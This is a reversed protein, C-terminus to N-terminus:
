DRVEGLAGALWGSVERRSMVPSGDPGHLARLVRDLAVELLAQAEPDAGSAELVPDASVGRQRIPQYTVRDGLEVLVRDLALAAEALGTLRDYAAVRAPADAAFDELARALRLSRVPGSVGADELARLYAARYLEMERARVEDAFVGAREWYRRVEGFAAADALYVGELWVEPVEGFALELRVGEVADRFARDAAVRVEAETAGLPGRPAPSSAAVRLPPAEGPEPGVRGAWAVTVVGLVAVSATAAWGFRARRAPKMSGPRDVRVTFPEAAPASRTRPVPAPVPPEQDVGGVGVSVLALERALAPEETDALREEEMRRIFAAAAEDPSPAADAVLSLDLGAGATEEQLRAELGPSLPDTLLPDQFLRVMPHAGAPSWEGTLADLVMDQPRVVGSRVLESFIELTRPELDRGDRTRIRFRAEM